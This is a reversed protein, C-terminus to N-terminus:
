NKNQIFCILGCEPEMNELDIVTMEIGISLYQHASWTIDVCRAIYVEETHAGCMM